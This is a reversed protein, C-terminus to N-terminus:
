RVGVGDPWMEPASAKELDGKRISIKYTLSRAGEHKTLLDCSKIELGKNILYQSLHIASVDKRIGYAVLDYDSSVM